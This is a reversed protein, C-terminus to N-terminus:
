QRLRVAFGLHFCGPILKSFLHPASLWSLFRCRLAKCTHLWPAFVEGSIGIEKQMSEVASEITELEVALDVVTSSRDAPFSDRVIKGFDVSILTDMDSVNNIAGPMDISFTFRSNVSEFAKQLATTIREIAAQSKTMMGDMFKVTKEEVCRLEAPLTEHVIQFLNAVAKVSEERKEPSFVKYCIQVATMEYEDVLKELSQREAWDTASAFNYSCKAASEIVRMGHRIAKGQDGMVSTLRCCQELSSAFKDIELSTTDTKGEQVCQEFELVSAVFQICEKVQVNAEAHVNGQLTAALISATERVAAELRDHIKQFSDEDCGLQAAKAPEFISMLDGSDKQWQLLVSQSAAADLDALKDLKKLNGSLRSCTDLFNAVTAGFLTDRIGLTPSNAAFIDPVMGNKSEHKLAVGVATLYPLIEDKVSAEVTLRVAYAISESLTSMKEKDAGKLQKADKGSVIALADVIRLRSVSVCARLWDTQTSQM